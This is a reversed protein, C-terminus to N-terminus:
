SCARDVRPPIADPAAILNVRSENKEASGQGSLAVERKPLAIIERALAQEIVYTIVEVEIASM